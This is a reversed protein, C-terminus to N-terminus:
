QHCEDIQSVWTAWCNHDGAKGIELSRQLAGIGMLARLGDQQSCIPKAEARIVWAHALQLDFPAAQSDISITERVLQQTWDKEVLGDHNWQVMDPILSLESDLIRYIDATDRSWFAPAKISYSHPIKPNEGTDTEFNHPSPMADCILFSGVVGSAFRLSIATLEHQPSLRQPPTFAYLRGSCTPGFLYHVIDIGHVPNIPM